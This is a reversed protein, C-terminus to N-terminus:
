VNGPAQKGLVKEFHRWATEYDKIRDCKNFPAYYTIERGKYLQNKTITYVFETEGSAARKQYEEFLPREVGVDSQAITFVIRGKRDYWTDAENQQLVRFKSRYMFCLEELTFGMAMAVLVDIEVLAQRREFDNRLPIASTWERTLGSFAKLRADSISWSDETFSADFNREWLNRYHATLCNLLLVRSFAMCQQRNDSFSLLPSQLITSAQYNTSGKSKIFYDYPLSMMEAAVMITDQEEKFLISKLGHVHSVFPSTICAHVTRSSELNLMARVSIKFHKLLEEKQLKKIEEKNDQTLEPYDKLFMETDAFESLQRFESLPLAPSLMTRPLYDVTVSTLDIADQDSNKVCPNRPCQFLPNGVTILPGTLILEIPTEPQRNEYKLFGDRVGYSNDFFRTVVPKLDGVRERIETFKKIVNLTQQDLLAVLVPSDPNSDPEFADRICHMEETGFHVLRDHEPTGKRFVQVLEEPVRLGVVEDISLSDEKGRYINVSFITERHIEPFLGGRNIFRFHYKDFNKM